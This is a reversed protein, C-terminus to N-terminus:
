VPVVIDERNYGCGEPHVCTATVGDGVECGCGPCAEHLRRELAAIEADLEAARKEAARQRATALGIQHRLAIIDGEAEISAAIKADLEDRLSEICAQTFEVDIM